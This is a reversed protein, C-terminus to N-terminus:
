IKLCRRLDGPTGAARVRSNQNSEPLQNRLHNRSSFNQRFINGDANQQINKNFEKAKFGAVDHGRLLDKTLAAIFVIRGKDDLSTESIGNLTLGMFHLEKNRENVLRVLAHENNRKKEITIKGRDASGEAPLQMHVVSAKQQPAPAEEKGSTGSLGLGVLAVTRLWKGVKSKGLRALFGQSETEKKVPAAAAESELTVEIVQITINDGQGFKPPREISDGPGVEIMYPEKSNNRKFALEFLAQQLKEGRYVQCLQEVEYESAVDWLGDSALIIQDSNKAQFRLVDPKKFDKDSGKSPAGVFGRVVMNFGHDFYLKESEARSVNEKKIFMSALNHLETTGERVVAGDRVTVAKSDGWSAIEVSGNKEVTAAVVCAYAGAKAIEVVRKDAALIGTEASIRDDKLAHLMTDQVIRQVMLGNKSTGAVDIVAAGLRGKETVVAVAADQNEQEGKKEKHKYKCGEGGASTISYVAAAPSAVELTENETPYDNSLEFGAYYDEDKGDAVLEAVLDQITKKEQETATATEFAVEDTGLPKPLNELTENIRAKDEPTIDSFQDASDSTDFHLEKGHAKQPVVDVMRRRATEGARVPTVVDDFDSFVSDRSRAQGSADMTGENRIYFLNEQRQDNLHVNLKFNEVAGFIGELTLEKEPQVNGLM